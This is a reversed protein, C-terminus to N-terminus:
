LVNDSTKGNALREFSTFHNGTGDKLDYFYVVYVDGKKM